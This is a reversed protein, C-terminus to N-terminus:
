DGKETNGNANGCLADIVSAGSNETASAQEDVGPEVDVHKQWRWGLRQALRLVDERGYSDRWHVVISASRRNLRLLLFWDDYSLPHFVGRAPLYRRRVVIEDVDSVHVENEGAIPVSDNCISFRVPLFAHQFKHFFYAALLGGLLVGAIRTEESAASIIIGFLVVGILRAAFNRLSGPGTCKAIFTVSDPCELVRTGTRAYKEFQEITNAPM